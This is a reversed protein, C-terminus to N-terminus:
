SEGAGQEEQPKKTKQKKPSPGVLPKMYGITSVVTSLHEHAIQLKKTLASVQGEALGASSARHEAEAKAFAKKSKLVQNWSSELDQFACAVNLKVHVLSLM